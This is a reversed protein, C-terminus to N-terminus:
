LDKASARIHRAPAMMEDGVKYGPHHQELREGVTWYLVDALANLPEINPVRRSGPVIYRDATFTKEAQILDMLQTNMDGLVLDRKIAEVAAKKLNHGVRKVENESMGRCLLFSKLYLEIAIILCHRVPLDPFAIELDTHRVVEAAMQFGRGNNLFTLAASKM